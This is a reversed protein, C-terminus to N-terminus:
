DDLVPGQVPEWRSCSLRLRLTSGTEPVWREPAVAFDGCVAVPRRVWMDTAPTAHLRDTNTM